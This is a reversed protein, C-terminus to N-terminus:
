KRRKERKKFKQGPRSRNKIKQKIVFMLDIGEELENPRKVSRLRPRYERNAKPYRRISVKLEKERKEKRVRM